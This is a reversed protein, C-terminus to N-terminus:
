AIGIRRTPAAKHKLSLYELLTIDQICEDVLRIFQNRKKKRFGDKGLRDLVMLELETVSEKATKM